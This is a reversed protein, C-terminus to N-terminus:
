DSLTQEWVALHAVGDGLLPEFRERNNRLEARLDEPSGSDSADFERKKRQLYHRLCRLKTATAPFDIRVVGTGRRVERTNGQGFLVFNAPDGNLTAQCEACDCVNEHFTAADKLWDMARFLRVADRYRVRSHLQPVYYRAIPIGGGVPVVSRFEGFEPAHTVGTLVREGLNGAALISFYGGHLNIVDRRGNERLRAAFDLFNGLEIEGASQEDFNDVWLIFGDSPTDLINRALNETKARDSLLGRSIVVGTYLKCDGTQERAIRCARVQIPLWQDYNTETLYFYPAVVAHPTVKPSDVSVYKMADAEEMAACLVTQQFAVCRGVFEQLIADDSIHQPLLPRLGVLAGIHKAEPDYQEALKAISSKPQGENDTVFTPDHQFAHTMPDIFYVLGTRELLFAALGAPAYAAMNANIIVGKYTDLTPYAFHRQEAFTGFLMWHEIAM